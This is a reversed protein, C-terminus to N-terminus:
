ACIKSYSKRRLKFVESEKKIREKKVIERVAKEWHKRKAENIIKQFIEPAYYGLDSRFKKPIGLYTYIADNVMQILEFFSDAQSYCHPLEKVKAWLGDKTKHVNVTIKNPLLKKYYNIDKKTRKKM